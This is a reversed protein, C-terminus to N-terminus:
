HFGIMLVLEFKYMYKNIKPSNSMNKMSSINPKLLGQILQHQARRTTRRMHPKQKEKTTIISKEWNLLIIWTPLLL